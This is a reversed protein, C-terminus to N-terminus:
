IQEQVPQCQCEQSRDCAIALQELQPDSETLLLVQSHQARQQTGEHVIEAQTRQHQHKNGHQFVPKPRHGGDPGNMIKFTEILDGRIRRVELPYLNLAKLRQNYPQKRLKPVLKTARRQVKELTKIDKKLYPCWAQVCYELHPRIYAKYLIAFSEADIHNFTRKIVRLSSM